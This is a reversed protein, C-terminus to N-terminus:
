ADERVTLVLKGRLHGGAAREHARSAASLPFSSDIAVRV